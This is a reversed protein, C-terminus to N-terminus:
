KLDEPTDFIFPRRMFEERAEEITTSARLHYPPVCKCGLQHTCGPRVQQPQRFADPMKKEQTM